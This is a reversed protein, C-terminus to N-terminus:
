AGAKRAQAGYRFGIVYNPVDETAVGQAIITGEDEADQYGVILYGDEFTVGVRATDADDPDVYSYVVMVMGGTQEVSVPVGADELAKIVPDLGQETTAQTVAEAYGM